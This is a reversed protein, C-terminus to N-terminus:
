GPSQYCYDLRNTQAPHKPITESGPITLCRMTATVNTNALLGEAPWSTKTRGIYRSRKEQGLLVGGKKM